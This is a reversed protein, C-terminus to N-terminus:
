ILSGFYLWNALLLLQSLSGVVQVHNCRLLFFVVAFKKLGNGFFNIVVCCFAMPAECCLLFHPLLLVIELGCFVKQSITLGYIKSANKLSYVNKILKLVADQRSPHQAFKDLVLKNQNNVCFKGLMNM